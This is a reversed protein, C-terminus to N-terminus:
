KGHVSKVKAAYDFKPDQGETHCQRCLAAGAEKVINKASPNAAHESGPDHCAECQVGAMEPTLEIDIFGGDKEYGTVHCKVCAPLSEQKSKKLSEIAKAHRTTKWSDSLETHCPTCKEWGVYTASPGSYTGAANTLLLLLVIGFGKKITMFGKIRELLNKGVERKNIFGGM